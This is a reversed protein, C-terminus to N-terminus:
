HRKEGILPVYKDAMKPVNTCKCRETYLSVRPWTFDHHCDHSFKLVTIIDVYMIHRTVAILICIYWIRELKHFMKIM